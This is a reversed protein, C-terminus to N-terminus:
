RNILPALFARQEQSGVLPVFGKQRQLGKERLAHGPFAVVSKRINFKFVFGFLNWKQM